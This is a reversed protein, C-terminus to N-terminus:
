INIPNCLLVDDFYFPHCPEFENEFPLITNDLPLTPITSLQLPTPYASVFTTNYPCCATFTMPQAPSLPKTNQNPFFSFPNAPSFNDFPISLHTPASAILLRDTSLRHHLTKNIKNFAITNDNYSENDNKDFTHDKPNVNNYLPTPYDQAIPSTSPTNSVSSTFSPTFPGSNQSSSRDSDSETRESTRASDISRDDDTDTYNSYL